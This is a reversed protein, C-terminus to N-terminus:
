DDDLEITGIGNDRVYKAEPKRLKVVTGALLKTDSGTGAQVPPKAEGPVFERKQVIIERGAPDKRKIEDKWYGVVEFVPPLRKTKDAPDIDEGPRYNRSLLVSVMTPPPVDKYLEFAENPPMPPNVIANTTTDLAATAM